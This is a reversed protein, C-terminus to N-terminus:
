TTAVALCEGGDTNAIPSSTFCYTASTCWADFGFQSCNKLVIAHTTACDDLIATPPKGALNNWFNYFFCDDFLLYRDVSYNGALAVLSPVSTNTECRMEFTCQRFVPAFSGASAEFMVSGPGASRANNGASGFFCKEALFGNGGGAEFIVPIGADANLQNAGNGGRPRINKMYTNKGGIIIDCRNDADSYTNMTQFGQLQVHHGSISLISDVNATACYFRVAGDIATTPCHKQNAGGMGLLHASSKDWEVEATSVYDGPYTLLCDNRNATLAAEGAALTHHIKSSEQRLDDRLWSYYASDEEVLYHIDGVGPGLKTTAMVWARIQNSLNWDM